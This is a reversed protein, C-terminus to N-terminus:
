AMRRRPGAGPLKPSQPDHLSWLGPFWLSLASHRCRPLSAQPSTEHGLGRTWLAKSAPHCSCTPAPPQALLEMQHTKDPPLTAQRPWRTQAVQGTVVAAGSSQTLGTLAALPQLPPAERHHSPRGSGRGARRQRHNRAQLSSGPASVPHIATGPQGPACKMGTIPPALPVRSAMWWGGRRGLPEPNMATGRADPPRPPCWEWRSNQRCRGWRVGPLGDPLGATHCGRIHQPPRRPGRCHGRPVHDGPRTGLVAGGKLGDTSCTVLLM